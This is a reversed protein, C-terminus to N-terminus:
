KIRLIDSSEFANWEDLPFEEGDECIAKTFDKYKRQLTGIAKLGNNATVILDKHEAESKEEYNNKLTKYDMFNEKVQIVENYIIKLM